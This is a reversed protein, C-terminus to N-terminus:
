HLDQDYREQERSREKELEEEIDGVYNKLRSIRGDHPDIVLELIAVMERFMQLVLYATRDTM